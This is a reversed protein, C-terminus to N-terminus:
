LEQLVLGSCNYMIAKKRTARNVTSSQQSPCQHSTLWPQKSSTRSDKPFHDGPQLNPYNESIKKKLVSFPINHTKM